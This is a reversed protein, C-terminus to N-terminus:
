GKTQVCNGRGKFLLKTLQTSMWSISPAALTASYLWLVTMQLRTSSLLAMATMQLRTSSLLAMACVENFVRLVKARASVVSM